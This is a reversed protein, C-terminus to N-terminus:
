ALNVQHASTTDDRHKLMVGEDMVGAGQDAPRSRCSLVGALHVGINMSTCM